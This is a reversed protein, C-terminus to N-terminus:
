SYAIFRRPMAAIMETKAMSPLSKHNQSRDFASEQKGGGPKGHYRIVVNAKDPRGGGQFIDAAPFGADLFRKAVANAATTTNGVSDATNIEILEKYIDHALQQEPRLASQQSQALLLAPFVAAVLGAAIRM